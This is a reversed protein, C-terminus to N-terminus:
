KGTPKEKGDVLLLLLLLLFFFRLSVHIIIKILKTRDKIKYSCFLCVFCFFSLFFSLFISFFIILIDFM